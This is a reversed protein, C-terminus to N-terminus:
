DNPFRFRKGCVVELLLRFQKGPNRRGAALSHLYDPKTECRIALWAQITPRLSAWYDSFDVIM